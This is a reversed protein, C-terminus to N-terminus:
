ESSGLFGRHGVIATHDHRAHDPDRSHGDGPHTMDM